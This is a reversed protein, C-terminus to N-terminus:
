QPLLHLHYLIILTIQFNKVAIANSQEEKQSLASSNGATGHTNSVDRNNTLLDSTITAHAVIIHNSQSLDIAAAYHQQEQLIPVAFFPFNVIPM